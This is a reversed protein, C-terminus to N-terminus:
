FERKTTEIIYTRAKAMKEYISSPSRWMDISIKEVTEHLIYHRRMIEYTEEDYAKVYGILTEIDKSTEAFESGDSMKAIKKHIGMYHRLRDSSTEERGRAATTTKSM